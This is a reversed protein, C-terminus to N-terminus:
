RLLCSTAKAKMTLCTTLSLSCIPRLPSQSAPSHCAMPTWTFGRRRDRLSSLPLFYKSQVVTSILMNNLQSQSSENLDLTQKLKIIKFQTLPSVKHSSYTVAQFICYLINCANEEVVYVRLWLLKPNLTKSLSVVYHPCVIGPNM